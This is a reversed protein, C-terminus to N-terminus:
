DFCSWLNRFVFQYCLNRMRFYRIVMGTNIASHLLTKFVM